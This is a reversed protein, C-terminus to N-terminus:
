NYAAYNVPINSYSGSMHPVSYGAYYNNIGGIKDNHPYLKKGGKQIYKSNFSSNMPM